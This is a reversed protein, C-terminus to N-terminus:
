LSFQHQPLAFGNHFILFSSFFSVKKLPKPFRDTQLHYNGHKQHGKSHNGHNQSSLSHQIGHALTLNVGTHCLYLVVATNKGTFHRPHPIQCSFHTSTHVTFNLGQCIYIVAPNHHYVLIKPNHRVGEMNCLFPQIHRLLNKAAELSLAATNVILIFM